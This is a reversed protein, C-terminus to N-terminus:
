LGRIRCVLVRREIGLEERFMKEAEAEHGNEMLAGALDDM